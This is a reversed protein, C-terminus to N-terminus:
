SFIRLSLPYLIARRVTALYRSCNFIGTARNRLSSHNERVTHITNKGGLGKRAFKAALATENRNWGNNITVYMNETKASTNGYASSGSLSPCHVKTKIKNRPVNRNGERIM